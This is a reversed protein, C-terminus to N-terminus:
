SIMANLRDACLTCNGISRGQTRSFNLRGTAALAESLKDQTKTGKLRVEVVVALTATAYLVSGNLSLAMVAKPQILVADQRSSATELTERVAAAELVLASHAQM